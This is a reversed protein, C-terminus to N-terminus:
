ASALVGIYINVSLSFGVVLFFSFFLISNAYKFALGIEDDFSKDGYFRFIAAPIQLSLIPILFFQMVQYTSIQGVEKIDLFKAFIFLGFFSCAKALFLFIYKTM